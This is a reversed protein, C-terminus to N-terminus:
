LLFILNILLSIFYSRCFLIDKRIAWFIEGCSSHALCFLSKAFNIRIEDNNYLKLDVKELPIYIGGALCFACVDVVGLLLGTM